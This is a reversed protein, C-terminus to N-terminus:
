EMVMTSLTKSILRIDRGLNNIISEKNETTKASIEDLTLKINNLTDLVSKYTEGQENKSILEALKTIKRTLEDHASIINIRNGEFEELQRQFSYITEITKELLSMSFIEGHYVNKSDISSVSILNNTIWEETRDLLDNAVNRVIINCFGLILTGSLGFLSCGFATGMGSLPIKLSDRLRAFSASADLQEIGLNDIINAVNGITQSLGWFTGFLGLFILIGAIYKSYLVTDDVKKEISQMISNIKTDSVLIDKNKTYVSIPSMIGTSPIGGGRSGNSVLNKYGQKYIFISRISILMGILFSCLIVSNIQKNYLFANKLDEFLYSVCISVTILFTSIVYLGSNASKLQVVDSTYIM